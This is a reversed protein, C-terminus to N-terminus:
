LKITVIIANHQNMQCKKLVEDASTYKDGTVIRHIIRKKQAVTELITINKDLEGKGAM